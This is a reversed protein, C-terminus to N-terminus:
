GKRYGYVSVTGGTLTGAVLLTFDTYSTAVGHYGAVFGSISGVYPGNMNTFKALYPNFVDLSVLQNTSSTEGVFVFSAGNNTTATTTTGTAYNVYSLVGYYGTTSAGLQMAIAQTSSGVGGSLVIKYNDYTASFANTINVSAVATGVTTSSIWALGTNQQLTTMQAATLIQGSTVTQEAM